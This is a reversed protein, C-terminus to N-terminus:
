SVLLNSTTTFPSGKNPSACSATVSRQNAWQRSFAFGFWACCSDATRAECNGPTALLGPVGLQNTVLVPGTQHDQRVLNAAPEQQFCGMEQPAQSGGFTRPTGCIRCPLACPAHSLFHLEINAQAAARAKARESNVSFQEGPM